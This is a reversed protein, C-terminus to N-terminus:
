KGDGERISKGSIITLLLAIRFSRFQSHTLLLDSSSRVIGMIHTALRLVCVFLHKM